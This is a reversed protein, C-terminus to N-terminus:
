SELLKCYHAHGPGRINSGSGCECRPLADMSVEVEKCPNLPIMVCRPRFIPMEGKMISSGVIPVRVVPAQALTEALIRKAEEKLRKDWYAAIKAALEKNIM